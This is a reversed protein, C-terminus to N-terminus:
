TEASQDLTVRDRRLALVCRVACLATVAALAVAGLILPWTDADMFSFVALVGLALAVIGEVVAERSSARTRQTGTM